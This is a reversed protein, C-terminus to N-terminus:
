IIYILFIDDKLNLSIFTYVQVGQSNRVPKDNKIKHIWSTVSDWRHSRFNHLKDGRQQIFEVQNRPYLIKKTKM